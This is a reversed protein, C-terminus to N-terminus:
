ILTTVILCITQRGIKYNYKFVSSKSFNGSIKLLNAYIIIPIRGKRCKRLDIYEKKISIVSITREMVTHMNTIPRMRESITANHASTVSISHPINVGVSAKDPNEEGTTMIIIPRNTTPPAM